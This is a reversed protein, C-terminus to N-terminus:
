TSKTEYNARASQAADEGDSDIRGFELPRRFWSTRWAGYLVGAALWYLGARKAPTGLSLWLYLCVGFGLLPAVLNNWSKREARLFYRVFSSANVGMFAILAGFNLLEAGLPYTLVFAGILTVVGVLIINNSPIRTRPHVAAFFRRPIANDRGMGYLLRGAGLHAGAGSGITAVLLALNVTHFLWQGGARGAVFCFATDADPFSTEPWVLQAAYVQISALVGTLLCTLVTALLINRRPNHVEESLTSIGDFGIYTLVALSAGASVVSFSFNQPDYFPHTWGALGGPPHFWLFRIAAGFFLVIVVGLGAAIIANTRTSAEIGRLNMATFLGAFIISYLAFPIEPVFNMAAKSCWIVCIIPNMVYDFIMGWGVLYGLAPHIERSVYTYASGASPYANAMRGYSIATFLMAVMGILITTVVHGRAKEAAAGFLPMPATPQILIIGYLVLAPLGLVRKLGPAPSAELRDTM